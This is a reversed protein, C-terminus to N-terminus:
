SERCPRGSKLLAGLCQNGTDGVLIRNGVTACLCEVFQAGSKGDGIGILFGPCIDLRQRTAQFGRNEHREIHCFLAVEIGDEGPDFLFPSLEIDESMMSTPKVQANRAVGNALRSEPSVKNTSPPTLM